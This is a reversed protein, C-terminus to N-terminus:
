KVGAYAQFNKRGMQQHKLHLNTQQYYYYNEKYWHAWSYDPIKDPYKSFYSKFLALLEKEAQENILSGCPVGKGDIIYDNGFVRKFVFVARALHKHSTVVLLNKDGLRRCKKRCAVAESITDRGSSVLVIDKKSVGREQLYKSRVRAGTKSFCIADPRYNSYKEGLAFIKPAMGQKYLRVGADLRQKSLETLSGDNYRGGGLVIIADYTRAM